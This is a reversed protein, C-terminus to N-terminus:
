TFTELKNTAWLVIALVRICVYMFALMLYGVTAANHRVVLTTTPVRASRRCIVCTGAGRMQQWRALCSDCAFRKRCTHCPPARAEDLDFSDFCVLCTASM